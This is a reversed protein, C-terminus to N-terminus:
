GPKSDSKDAASEQDAGVANNRYTVRTTTAAPAPTEYTIVPALDADAAESRITAKPLESTPAAIKATPPEALLPQRAPPPPSTPRM